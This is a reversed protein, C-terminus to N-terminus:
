WKKRDYGLGAAASQLDPPLADWSTDCISPESLSSDDWQEPSFGLITVLKQKGKPLKNFAMDDWDGADGDNWKDEDFGLRKAAAQKERPLKKWAVRCISPDDDSDDNDWQAPTYGLLLVQEQKPAPLEDFDFNEYSACTSADDWTRALDGDEEGRLGARGIAYVHHTGDEDTVSGVRQMGIKEAVRIAAANAAAITNSAITLDDHRGFVLAGYIGKLVAGGLGQGRFERDLVWDFGASVRLDLCSRLPASETGYFDVARYTQAWGAARGGVVVIWHEVPGPNKALSVGDRVCARFHELSADVGRFMEAPLDAHWRHLLPADDATAARFTVPASM